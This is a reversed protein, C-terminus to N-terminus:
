SLCTQSEQKREADDGSVLPTPCPRWPMTWYHTRRPLPTPIHVAFGLGGLRRHVTTLPLERVSQIGTNHQAESQAPPPVNLPNDGEGALAEAPTYMGRVPASGIVEENQALTGSSELLTRLVRSCTLMYTARWGRVERGSTGGFSLNLVIAPPTRKVKGAAMVAHQCRDVM